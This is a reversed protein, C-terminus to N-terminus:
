ATLRVACLHMLFKRDDEGDYFLVNARSYEYCSELCIATWNPALPTDEKGVGLRCWNDIGSRRTQSDPM